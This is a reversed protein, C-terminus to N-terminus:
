PSRLFGHLTGNAVYFGTIVGAPNIADPDTDVSGPPDFTTFTGARDRLFGHITGNADDYFGTIAGAPNIATAVTRTSGTLDFTM